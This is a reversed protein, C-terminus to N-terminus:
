AEQAFMPNAERIRERAMKCYEPNLEIGIFSRGLRVAMSGAAGSGAFPDLVTAPVVAKKCKCAPRWATTRVHKQLRPMGAGDYNNQGTEYHRGVVSGPGHRPSKSYNAETERQYPAGCKLCCGRESTGAKVCPEVLKEPFTAFHAGPYPQTAITWVSRKNRSGTAFTPKRNPRRSPQRQGPPIPGKQPRCFNAASAHQGTDGERIAEADYYYRKAKTLLFLYEHARTPRDRVSEPMPNPKSWIIDCRLWWGDAQLAFALRWPMGLLDKPKLGVGAGPRFTRETHEPRCGIRYQGRRDNCSKDAHGGSSAYSDGMNLWLTGDKRLVRRIERFVMVMHEIYLEPTPELGLSGRWASCGRCFASTTWRQERTTDVEDFGVGEEGTRTPSDKYQRHDRWDHRCDAEGGWVQPELGYNRLGFYPPSTVLCHVSEDPLEALGERVDANIIRWTPTVAGEGM